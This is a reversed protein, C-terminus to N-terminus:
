IMFERNKAIHEKNSIPSLPWSSGKQLIGQIKPWNHHHIFLKELVSASRFESGPYIFTGVSNEIYQQINNGHYRLVRMNHDAPTKSLSFQLNPSTPIVVPTDVILKITPLFWEPTDLKSFYLKQSTPFFMPYSMNTKSFSDNTFQYKIYKIMKFKSYEGSSNVPSIQPDPLIGDIISHIKKSPQTNPPKGKLSGGWHSTILNEGAIPKDM